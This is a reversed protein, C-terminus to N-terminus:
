VFMTLDVEAKGVEVRDVALVVGCRISDFRDWDLDKMMGLTHDVQGRVVCGEGEVILLVADTTLGNSVGGTTLLVGARDLCKDAPDM